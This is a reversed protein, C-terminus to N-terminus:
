SLWYSCLERGLLSSDVQAFMRHPKFLTCCPCQGLRALRLMFFCALFHLCCSFPVCLSALLAFSLSVALIPDLTKHYM